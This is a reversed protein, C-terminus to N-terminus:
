NYFPQSPSISRAGYSHGGKGSLKWPRPSSVGGVVCRGLNVIASLINAMCGHRRWLDPPRESLWELFQITLYGSPGEFTFGTM